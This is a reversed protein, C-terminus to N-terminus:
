CCGTRYKNKDYEVSRDISQLFILTPPIIKGDLVLQRFTMLKGEEKTVFMLKQEIETAAAMPTGSLWM